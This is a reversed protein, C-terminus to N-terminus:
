APGDTGVARGGDGEGGTAVTVVGVGGGGFGFGGGGDGCGEAGRFAFGVLLAGGAGGASADVEGGFAGM